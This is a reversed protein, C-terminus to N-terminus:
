ESWNNKLKKYIDSEMLWYMCGIFSVLPIAWSSFTLFFAQDFGFYIYIYKIAVLGETDVSFVPMTCLWYLMLIFSIPLSYKNKLFVFIAMIIIAMEYTINGTKIADVLGLLQSFSYIAWWNAIILVIFLVFLINFVIKLRKSM